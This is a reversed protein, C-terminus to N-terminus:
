ADADPLVEEEVDLLWEFRNEDVFVWDMRDAIAIAQQESEIGVVYDCKVHGIPSEKVIKYTKM